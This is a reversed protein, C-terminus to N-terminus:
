TLETATINGSDDVTLKFKKASGETSSRIVVGDVSAPLFEEPMPVPVLQTTEAIMSMTHNGAEMGYLLLDSYSKRRILLFPEGTSETTGSINSNISGDGLWWPVISPNKSANVTCQYEVNDFLVKVTMGIELPLDGIGHKTTLDYAGSTYDSINIDFLVEPGTHEERVPLWEVKSLQAIDKKLVATEPLFKEPLKRVSEKMYEIGISVYESVTEAITICGTEVAFPERTDESGNLLYKNGLYPRQEGDVDYLKCVCEYVTGKYTVVYTEGEVLQIEDLAEDGEVNGSLIWGYEEFAMNYYEKKPLVVESTFEIWHTRNQVYGAEGNAANWNAVSDPLFDRDLKKLAFNFYAIKIEHSTPSTDMTFVIANSTEGVYALFPEGTNEFTNKGLLANLMAFNGALTGLGTVTSPILGRYEVGDFSIVFENPRPPEWSTHYAVPCGYVGFETLASTYNGSALEVDEELKYHTRNLIHGPEGEAANWDSQAGGGSGGGSVVVNGNKDPAIGNVTQVYAPAEENPNIVIKVDKPANEVTEGPSLVYVEEQTSSGGTEITVNGYEDAKIGNVSTVLNLEQETKSLKFFEVSYNELDSPYIFSCYPESEFSGPDIGNAVTLVLSPTGSVYASFQWHKKGQVTEIITCDSKTFEYEEVQGINRTINFRVRFDFDTPSNLWVQQGAIKYIRQSGFAQFDDHEGFFFLEKTIKAPTKVADINKRAQEKQSETLSQKTYLVAKQKWIPSEPNIPQVGPKPDVSYPINWTSIEDGNKYSITLCLIGDGSVSTIASDLIVEVSNGIVDVASASGANTDKLNQYLVSVTADAPIEYPLGSDSIICLFKRGVDGQKAYITPMVGKNSIDLYITQM